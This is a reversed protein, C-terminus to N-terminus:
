RGVISGSGAAGAPDPQADGQGDQGDGRGDADRGARRQGQEAARRGAGARAVGGACRDLRPAAPARGAGAKESRSWFPRGTESAASRPLGAIM